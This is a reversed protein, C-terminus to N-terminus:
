PVGSTPVIGLKWAKWGSFYGAARFALTACWSWWHRTHKQTSTKFPWSLDMEQGGWKSVRFNGSGFCQCNDHEIWECGNMDPSCCRMFDFLVEANKLFGVQGFLFVPFSLFFCLHGFSCFLNLCNSLCEGHHGFEDFCPQGHPRSAHKCLTKVGWTGRHMWRLWCTENQVSGASSSWRVSM